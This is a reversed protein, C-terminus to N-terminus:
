IQNVSGIGVYWNASILADVDYLVWTSLFFTPLTTSQFSQIWESVIKWKYIDKRERPQSVRVYIFTVVYCM